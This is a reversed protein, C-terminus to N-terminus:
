IEYNIIEKWKKSIIKKDFRYVSMIANNVIFNYLKKNFYLLKVISAIEFSNKEEVLFGNIKNQIIESPGIHNSAIVVLGSAMAEINVIGFLEQWKDTKISPNLFIHCKRYIKALEKKDSIWGYYTVNELDFVHEIKKKYEGDGVIHFHFKKKDLIKILEIITDLGKEYLFKGVFLINFKCFNNNYDNNPKFKDIDVSHYIQTIKGNIEFNDILTNFSHKTVTVIKLNENKLFNVWIKKFFNTFIGYKRPNKNDDGWFPHSTNYILNNNKLLLQYWIIRFDYPAMGLIITKNKIFPVKLRFILNKITRRITLLSFQKKIIDRIFLKFVSSEYYSLKINNKKAYFEVAEYYPKGNLDHLIIIEKKPNLM